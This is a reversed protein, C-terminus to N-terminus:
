KAYELVLEKKKRIKEQVCPLEDLRPGNSVLGRITEIDKTQLIKRIKGSETLLNRAKEAPQAFSSLSVMADIIEKYKEKADKDLRDKVDEMLKKIEVIDKCFAEHYKFSDSSKIMAMELSAHCRNFWENDKGLTFTTTGEEAMKIETVKLGPFFKELLSSVDKGVQTDRLFSEKGEGTKDFLQPVLRKLEAQDENSLRITLETPSFKCMDPYRKSIEDVVQKFVENDKELYKEKSPISHLKVVEEGFVHSGISIEPITPDKERVVMISKKIMNGWAKWRPLDGSLPEGASDISDIAIIGNRFNLTIQRSEYNVTSSANYEQIEKVAKGKKDGSKPTESMSLQEHSRNDTVRFSSITKLKSTKKQEVPNLTKDSKADKPTELRKALSSKTPKLYNQTSKPSKDKTPPNTDQHSSKCIKDM